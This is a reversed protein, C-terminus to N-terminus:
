DFRRTSNAHAFYGARFMEWFNSEETTLPKSFILYYGHQTGTRTYPKGGFFTKAEQEYPTQEVIMNHPMPISVGKVNKVIQGATRLISFFVSGEDYAKYGAVGFFFFKHDM